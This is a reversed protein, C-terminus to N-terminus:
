ELMFWTPSIRLSDEVIRFTNVGIEIGLVIQLEFYDVLELELSGHKLASL